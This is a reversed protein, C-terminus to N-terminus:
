EMESSQAGVEEYLASPRAEQKLLTIDLEAAGQDPSASRPQLTTM